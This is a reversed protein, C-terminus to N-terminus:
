AVGRKGNGGSQLWRRRAPVPRVSTAPGCLSDRSLGGAFGPGGAGNPQFSALLRAAPEPLARAGPWWARYVEAISRHAEGTPIPAAGCSGTSHAAAPSNSAAGGTLDALERIGSDVPLLEGRVDRGGSQLARARPRVRRWGFRYEGGDEERGM